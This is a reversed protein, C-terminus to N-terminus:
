PSPAYASCWAGPPSWSGKSVGMHTDFSLDLLNYALAQLDADERAYLEGAAFGTLFSCAASKICSYYTFAASGGSEGRLPGTMGVVQCRLMDAYFSIASYMSMTDNMQTVYEGLAQGAGDDMRGVLNGTVPDIQWWGIRDRGAFPISSKPVIAVGGYRPDTSVITAVGASAAASMYAPTGGDTPIGLLRQEIATDEYGRVANATAAGAIGTATMANSVIDIREAVGASKGDYTFGRSVGVIMPATYLFHLGNT